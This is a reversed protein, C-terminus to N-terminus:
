KKLAPNLALGQLFTSIISVLLSFLLAWWFGGVSFGPIIYAALMVMLANIVFVFLGLTIITAPLTLFILLPRVFANLAGLIIAVLLAYGFNAVHVGPIIAATVLVAISNLFIKILIHM